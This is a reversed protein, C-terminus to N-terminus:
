IMLWGWEAPIPARKGGVLQDACKGRLNADRAASIRGRSWRFEEPAGIEGRQINRRRSNRKRGQRWSRMGYLVRAANEDCMNEGSTQEQGAEHGNKASTSPSPLLSLNNRYQICYLTLLHSELHVTGGTCWNVTNDKQKEHPVTQAVRACSEDAVVVRVGEGGVVIQKEEM